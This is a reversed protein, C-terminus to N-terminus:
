KDRAKKSKEQNNLLVNNILDNDFLFARSMHNKTERPLDERLPIPIEKFYEREINLKAIEDDIKLIENDRKDMEICIDLQSPVSNSSQSLCNKKIVQLMIM